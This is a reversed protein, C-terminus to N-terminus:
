SEELEAFFIMAIRELAFIAMLLGSAVFPWYAVSRSIWLTPVLHDATYAVLSVGHILMLIGFAAVLLSNLTLVWSRSRPPLNDVIIRLGLHFGQRVGVAAALMVYYLMLILALTESWAPSDNLVYRGFVQWGIIGTMLILGIGSLHLLLQSIRSLARSCARLWPPASM